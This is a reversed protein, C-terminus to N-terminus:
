GGAILRLVRVETSEIPHDAPVPQGEVVVTAEQPSLDIARLVAEYTGGDVDVTRAPEGVMEVTVEM